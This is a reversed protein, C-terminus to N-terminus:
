SLGELVPLKAQQPQEGRVCNRGAQKAEYLAEDARGILSTDRTDTDRAQAAGISVTCRVFHGDPDLAPSAEVAARVTEALDFAGQSDTEPLLVAFEDGGLRALTDSECVTGRCAEALQRRVIDGVNHGHEDNILKLDDLDVMLLSLPHGYRKSRAMEKELLPMFLRRNAAGTLPDIASVL